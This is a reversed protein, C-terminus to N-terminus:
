IANPHMDEWEAVWRKRPIPNGPLKREVLLTM